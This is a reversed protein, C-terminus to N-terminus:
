PLDERGVALMDGITWEGNVQGTGDIIQMRRPVRLKYLADRFNKKHLLSLDYFHKSADLATMETGVTVTAGGFFHAVIRCDKAPEPPKWLAPRQYKELRRGKRKMKRRKQRKM